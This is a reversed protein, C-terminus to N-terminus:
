QKKPFRVSRQTTISHDHVVDSVSIDGYRVVDINTRRLIYLVHISGLMKYFPLIAPPLQLIEDVHTRCALIFFSM